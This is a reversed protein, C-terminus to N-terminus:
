WFPVKLTPLNIKLLANKLNIKNLLLLIRSLKALDAWHSNKGKTKDRIFAKETELEM